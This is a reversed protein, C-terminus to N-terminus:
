KMKGARVRVMKNINFTKALLYHHDDCYLTVPFVKM